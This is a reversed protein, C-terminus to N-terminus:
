KRQLSKFYETFALLSKTNMSNLAKNLTKQYKENLELVREENVTLIVKIDKQYQEYALQIMPLSQVLSENNELEKSISNMSAILIDQYEILSRQQVMKISSEEINKVIKVLEPTLKLWESKSVKSKLQFYEDVRKKSNFLCGKEETIYNLLERAKEVLERATVKSM